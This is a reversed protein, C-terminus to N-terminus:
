KEDLAEKLRTLLLDIDEISHNASLTIRLRSTGLPVTPPRIAKVLLGQNALTQSIKMAKSAD